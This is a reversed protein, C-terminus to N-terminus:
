STTSPARATPLRPNRTRLRRSSSRVSQRGQGASISAAGCTRLCDAPRDRRLSLKQAEALCHRSSM